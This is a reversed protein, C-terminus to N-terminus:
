KIRLNLWPSRACQECLQWGVGGDGPIYPSLTRSQLRPRQAVALKQSLSLNLALCVHASLYKHFSHNTAKCSWTLVPVSGGRETEKM